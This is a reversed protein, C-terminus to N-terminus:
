REYKTVLEHRIKVIVKTKIKVLIIVLKYNPVPVYLFYM